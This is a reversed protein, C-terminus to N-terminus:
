HLPMDAPGMVSVVLAGCSGSASTVVVGEVEPVCCVCVCVCVSAKHVSGAPSLHKGEGATHRLIM